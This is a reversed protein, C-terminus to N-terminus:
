FCYLYARILSFMKYLIHLIDANNNKIL